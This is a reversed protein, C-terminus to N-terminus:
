YRELMGQVRAIARYITYFKCPLTTQRQMVEEVIAEHTHLAVALWNLDNLRDQLRVVGL